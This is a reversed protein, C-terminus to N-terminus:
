GHAGRLERMRFFRVISAALRRNQQERQAQPPLAASELDRLDVTM